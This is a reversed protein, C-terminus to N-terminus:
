RYLLSHQPAQASTGSSRPTVATRAPQRTYSQRNGMGTKGLSEPPHVPQWARRRPSRQPRTRLRACGGCVGSGSASQQPRAPLRASADRGWSGRAARLSSGARRAASGGTGSSCGTGPRAGVSDPRGPVRQAPHPFCPDSCRRVMALLVGPFLQKLVYPGGNGFVGVHVRPWVSELGLQSPPPTLFFSGAGTVGLSVQCVWYFLM